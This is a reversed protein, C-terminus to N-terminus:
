DEVADDPPPTPAVVPPSSPSPPASSAPPPSPVPVGPPPGPVASGEAATTVTERILQAEEIAMRPVPPAGRKLARAALLGAGIGLVILIGAMAFFGWFYTFASGPLVYYLLWACGVMFFIVAMVFFLGAAAGVAAGRALKTVRETVEAKALEIEERVLVQARESIDNITTAINQPDQGRGNGLPPSM